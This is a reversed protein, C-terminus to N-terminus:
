DMGRAIRIGLRPLSSNSKGKIEERLERLRDGIVM